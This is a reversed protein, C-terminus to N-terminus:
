RDGHAGGCFERDGLGEGRGYGASALRGSVNGIHSSMQNAAMTEATSQAVANIIPDEILAPLGYSVRMTNMAIILDYATVGESQQARAEGQAASARAAPMLTGTLLILLLWGLVTKTKM